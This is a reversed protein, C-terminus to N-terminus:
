CAVYKKLKKSVLWVGMCDGKQAGKTIKLMQAEQVSVISSSEVVVRM